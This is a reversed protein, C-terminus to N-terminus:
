EAEQDKKQNKLFSLAQRFKTVQTGIITSGLTLGVTCAIYFGFSKTSNGMDSFGIPKKAISQYAESMINFMKNTSSNIRVAYFQINKQAFEKM